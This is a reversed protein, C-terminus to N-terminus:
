ILEPDQWIVMEAKASGQEHYPTNDAIQSQVTGFFTSTDKHEWTPRWPESIGLHHRQARSIVEPMMLYFVSSAPTLTAEESNDAKSM